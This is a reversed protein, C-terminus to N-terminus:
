DRRVAPERRISVEPTGAQGNQIKVRVVTPRTGPAGPARPLGPCRRPPMQGAHAFQGGAIGRTPAARSSGQHHQRRRVPTVGPM